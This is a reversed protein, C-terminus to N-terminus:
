YVKTIRGLFHWETSETRADVYVFVVTKAVTTRTKVTHGVRAESTTAVTLM